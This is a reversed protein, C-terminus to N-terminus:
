ALEIGLILEPEHHQVTPLDFLVLLLVLQVFQPPTPLEVRVRNFRHLLLPLVLQILLHLQQLPILIRHLHMQPTNVPM